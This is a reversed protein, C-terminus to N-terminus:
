PSAVPWASGKKQGSGLRPKSPRATAPGKTRWRLIYAWMSLPIAAVKVFGSTPPWCEPCTRAAVQVALCRGGDSYDLLKCDIRRGVSANIPCLDMSWLEVQRKSFTNRLTARRDIKFVYAPVSAANKESTQNQVTIELTPLDNIVVPARSALRRGVITMTSPLCKKSVAYDAAESGHAVITRLPRRSRGLTALVRWSVSPRATQGSCGSAGNARLTPDPIEPAQDVRFPVHRRDHQGSHVLHAGDNFAM